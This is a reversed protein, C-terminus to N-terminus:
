EFGREERWAGHLTLPLAARASLRPAPSLSLAARRQWGRTEMIPKILGLRRVALTIPRRSKM